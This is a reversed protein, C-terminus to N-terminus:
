TIRRDNPGFGPKVVQSFADEGMRLRIGKELDPARRLTHGGDVAIHQGTVWRSEESSLWVVADGVDEPEGVFGLPMQAVYDDVVDPMHDFLPATAESRVVGPRITNVRIGFGGLEDAASRVLMDLAAKSSAYAARFRGGLAGAISSIGIISGGHDRMRKAASQITTFAGVVNIDLTQRLADADMALFPGGTGMGANAVAIQLRGDTDSAHAVAAEVADPDTVDCVSTTITAGTAAGLSAAAADLVDGRRGAITVQAGSEALRRAIGLGIGTGGGTVFAHKGTLDAMVPSAAM